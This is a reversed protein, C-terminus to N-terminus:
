ASGRCVLIVIILLFIAGRIGVRETKFTQAIIVALHTQLSLSTGPTRRAALSKESCFASCLRTDPPRRTRRYTSHPTGLM